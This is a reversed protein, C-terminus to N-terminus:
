KARRRLRAVVAWAACALVITALAAMVATHWPNVRRVGQRTWFWGWWHGNSSGPVDDDEGPTHPDRANRNGAAAPSVRCVEGPDGSNWAPVTYAFPAANAAGSGSGEPCWRERPFVRHVCRNGHTYVLALTADRPPVCLTATAPVYVGTEPDLRAGPIEYAAASGDEEGAFAVTVPYADQNTLVLRRDTAACTPM